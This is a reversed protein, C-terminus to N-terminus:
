PIRKIASRTLAKSGELTPTTITLLRGRVYSEVGALGSVGELENRIAPVGLDPIPEIIFKIDKYSEGKTQARRWNAMEESSSMTQMGASVLVAVMDTLENPGTFNCVNGPNLASKQVKWGVAAEVEEPTVVKCPDLKSAAATSPADANKASNATEGSSCGAVTLAAAIAILRTARTPLSSM